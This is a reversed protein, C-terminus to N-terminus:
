NTNKNVAIFNTTLFNECRESYSDLKVLCFPSIRYLDFNYKKFFLWFDRFYTRTDINSGGFEFQIVNIKKIFNKAGKLCELEHGEVDLKLFDIKDINNSQTYKKITVFKAYEFGKMKIESGLFSRKTLSALPSGQKDYFLKQVRNKSDIGINEIIIDKNKRFKKKLIYLNKKSPEFIFIKAIKKKKLIEETYEGINGGVDFIILKKKLLFKIVYKFEFKLSIKAGGFGKGLFISILYELKDFLNIFFFM